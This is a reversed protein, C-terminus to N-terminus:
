YTPFCVTPLGSLQSALAWPTIKDWQITKIVDVATSNQMQKFDPSIEALPRHWDKDSLEVMGALVTILKSVSAVRYISNEDVKQTGAKSAKVEPATHHYQLQRAKPDHLSFLGVSFTVNKVGALAAAGASSNLKGQLYQDLTTSLNRWSAHVLSHNSSLDVPTPYTPTIFDGLAANSCLAAISALTYSLRM